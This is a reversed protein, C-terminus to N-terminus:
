LMTIPDVDLSWGLSLEIREILSAVSSPQGRLVIQWRRRGRLKAHFAPAPGLLEIGPLGLRAIEERLKAGLTTAGERVARESSGALVLRALRAFPPYGHERRFALEASAFSRYDHRSAARICYHEPTYTQIIARGPRAGRGARGAVQTLLQFTREASRLDPLHLSTDASIVGVVTVGPLDLGKAIMQTGILVDAEGDVFRALHDEHARRTRATDQDWRLLRASPFALRAEDEVRQTGLGFFRIRTSRCKPCREPTKQQRGCLHCVLEDADAHYTFPSDCARCALVLGCDRCIVFTAAGRRNLFLIVQERAALAGEVASRLSRSFISRNGAKLEARLDVIEVAPLPADVRLSAMAGAPAALVAVREPLEVLRYRGSVARQWTVVDPTASGLVVPAGTLEGLRIAADRAHYRPPSDQKYSPEHEEDVVILGLDPLPAFLASRSGVVVDVEGSRARRWEDYHEGETLRSHLVVVRGPFRAAFRRITQPTLAIEPVLVIAQRGRAVAEQVLDIYVETKGSGTVGYLLHVTSAPSDFAAAIRRTAAEQSPTLAVPGALRLDLGALPDRRSEVLDVSILGLALLADRVAGSGFRDASTLPSAGSEVASALDRLDELAARIRGTAPLNALAAEVTARNAVLRAVRASRARVRPAVAGDDRAVVRKRVLSALAADIERASLDESLSARLASRTQSPREVLTAVVLDERESLGSPASADAEEPESDLIDAVLGYRPEARPQLGPPLMVRVAQALPVRYYDAIWRALGIQPATLVPVADLLAILPRTEFGPDDDSLAFVVGSLQRPGFPVRVLHGPRTGLGSPVEYTFTPNGRSAPSNVVVEAWTM